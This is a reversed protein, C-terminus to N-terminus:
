RNKPERVLRFGVLIHKIAEPRSHRAAPRCVGCGKDDWSGGKVMYRGPRSEQSTWEFVQGAADLLGYPSAADAFQGVPVTDFPGADHSNLKDASFADGWPFRRGDAGRAAKEWERETPLRWRHGTKASLWRAYARVDEISVMVVPHQGRGVPMRGGTWAFKRTREYPHILRYGKWTEPDVDPVRHGTEAVFAAYQANTIVTRTIEFAPLRAEQREPENEYWENKRTYSHGYGAEDLRYAAEREARDSGFIFPGAAVQVVEPVPTGTQARASPAGALAALSLGLGVAAARGAALSAGSRVAALRM